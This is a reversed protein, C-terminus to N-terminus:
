AKISTTALKTLVFHQLIYLSILEIRACPYEDTLVWHSSNLSYWCSLTWITKLFRQTMTRQVFAAEANSHNFDKSITIHLYLDASMQSLHNLYPPPFSIAAIFLQDSTHLAAHLAPVAGLSAENCYSLSCLMGSIFLYYLLALTSSVVLSLYERFFVRPKCHVCFYMIHLARLQNYVPM